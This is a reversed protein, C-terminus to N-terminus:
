LLAACCGGGHVSCSSPELSGPLWGGCSILLGHRGDPSTLKALTPGLQPTSMYWLSATCVMHRLATCLIYLVIRAAFLTNALSATAASPVFARLATLLRGPACTRGAQPGPGGGPKTAAVSYLQVVYLIGFRPM